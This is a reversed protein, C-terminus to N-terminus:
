GGKGKKENEKRIYIRLDEKEKKEKKKRERKARTYCYDKYRIFILYINYTDIYRHIHILKKQRKIENDARTLSTICSQSHNKLLHIYFGAM